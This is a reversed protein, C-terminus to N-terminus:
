EDVGTMGLDIGGVGSDVSEFKTRMPSKIGKLRHEQIRRHKEEDWVWIGHAAADDREGKGLVGDALRDAVAHGEVRSFYRRQFERGEARERKRMERQENEIKSKEHGVAFIDEKQIADVVDRWVRRSELPHQHCAVTLPTRELANCDFREVVQNGGRCDTIVFEGSWQGEVKYFLERQEGETADKWLRAVFGHRKGGIWGKGEYAIEATFGSSSRIVTNGSLEPCLAGTMIGEIHIKPMTILYDEDYKDLHYTSYGKRDIHM